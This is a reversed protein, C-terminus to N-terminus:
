DAVKRGSHSSGFSDLGPFGDAFAKFDGAAAFDRAAARASAMQQLALIWFAASAQAIRLDEAGSVDIPNLLIQREAM